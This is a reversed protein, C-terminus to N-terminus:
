LKGVLAGQPDLAAAAAASQMAALDPLNLAKRLSQSKLALSQVLSLANSPIWYCFVAAPMSATFPVMIVALGRMFWKLRSMVNAPQGQMGDAAGLEVNILFIGSAIIPLAYTPDPVTLDTFWFLGGEMLSPVKATSFSRLASFFGIFIPAQVLPSIMSKLPHCDYKAWVANMRVAFEQQANPNGRAAEDKFIQQAALMEPRAQTMRFTSQIQKVVVPFVAVRVALTVIAISEWWPTATAEHGFLLLRQFLRNVLWASELSREISDTEAVTILDSIVAPDFVSPSSDDGNGSNSIFASSNEQPLADGKEKVQTAKGLGGWAFGRTIFTNSLLCKSNRESVRIFSSQSQINSVLTSFNCIELSLSVRDSRGLSAVPRSLLGKLVKFGRM